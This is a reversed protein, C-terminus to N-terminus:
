GVARAQGAQQEGGLAPTLTQESRGGDERTNIGLPNCPDVRDSRAPAGLVEALLPLRVPAPTDAQLAAPDQISLTPGHGPGGPRGLGSLVGQEGQASGSLALTNNQRLLAELGGLALGGMELAAAPSFLLLAHETFGGARQARGAASQLCAPLPRRGGALPAHGRDRSQAVSEQREVLSRRGLDGGWRGGAVKGM